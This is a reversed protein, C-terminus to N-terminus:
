ACLSGERRLSPEWNRGPRRHAAPRPRRLEARVRRDGCRPRRRSLAIRLPPRHWDTGARPDRDRRPVPARPSRARGRGVAVRALPNAVGGSRSAPHQPRSARGGARAARRQVIAPQRPALHSVRATRARWSGARHWAMRRVGHGRARRHRAVGVLQPTRRCPAEVRAQRARPSLTSRGTCRSRADRTSRGPSFAAIVM